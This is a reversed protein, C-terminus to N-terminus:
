VGSQDYFSREIAGPLDASLLLNSPGMMTPHIPFNLAVAMPRGDLHDIRMMTLISEIPEKRRRNATVGSISLTGIGIRAPVLRSVADRISREVADTMHQLVEPVFRDVASLELVTNEIYAGPGSHTHTAALIISSEDFGLSALRGALERRMTSSPVIVDLSVLALRTNEVQVVLAKSRVPEHGGVSANLYYAFANQSGFWHRRAGGGYGALPVGDPPNLSVVSLGAQFGLEAHAATESAFLVLSFVVTRWM